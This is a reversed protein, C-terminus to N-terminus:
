QPTEKPTTDARRRIESLVDDFAHMNIDKQKQPLDDWPILDAHCKDCPTGFASSPVCMGRLHFGQATKTRMWSEHMIRGCDDRSIQLAGELEAVRALAADRERILSAQANMARNLSEMLATRSHPGNNERAEALNLAADRDSFAEQILRVVTGTTFALDDAKERLGANERAAALLAPAANRLSAILDMNADCEDGEDACYALSAVQSNTKRNGNVFWYPEYDGTDGLPVSGSDTTWPAATAKAELDALRNLEAETLPTPTPDHPMTTRENDM